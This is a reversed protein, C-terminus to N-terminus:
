EEPKVYSYANSIRANETTLTVPERYFAIVPTGKDVTEYLTKAIDSPVNICGHSGSTKYIDGGFSSRWSADHIGVNYAFPMFYDVASEYDEGVLTANREKYVIKFVGDPSGNSRSINGSVIDTEVILEGEKYFWLHQNTYDIEIYTNGIDDTGSQVATQEYVPEREVPEGGALDALIQEAEKSKSIVWGYDGGGIRITDGKSTVFDRVDAYTNYTSALSQVFKAVEDEDVTVSGDEDIVLMSLIKESTLNEDTGEIDYHITANMYSDIQEAAETIVPDTAYIQPNEYCDDTLTVDSEQNELAETVLRIIEDRVPTNGLVEPIIEYADDLIDIYANEPATIYDASFLDLSDLAELMAEQDFTVSSSLAYDYSHFLSLPWAFANQKNLISAEEGAPVYQYSFDMGALHFKNGNRDHITLLYDDALRINRSEVDAATKGGCSISGITTHFLYHNQFFIVFGIYISLLLLVIGGTLILVAKKKNKKAKPM